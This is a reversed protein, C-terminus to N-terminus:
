GKLLRTLEGLVQEARIPKSLLVDAKIWSKEEDTAADFEIGTEHAVGTVLIVPMTPDKKKAAYCLIFGDDSEDMMLDAILADVARDALVQEGEVRNCATLVEYGAAKLIMEQQIRFDPDDDVVLVTTHTTNSNTM